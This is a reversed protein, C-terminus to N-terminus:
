IAPEQGYFCQLGSIPAYPLCINCNICKSKAAQGNKLKDPLDPEIILPRSMAILDADDRSLTEEMDSLTRYGGVSIVTVGPTLKKVKRALDRNYCYKFASVEKVADAKKQATQISELDTKGQTFLILPIDGRITTFGSEPIGGSIEVADAGQEQAMGTYKACLEPDVGGAINDSGNLKLLIPFDSGLLGRAKELIKAVILFRGEPTGGWNDNRKNIHPSLFDSLLYGHASHLQIGDFGAEKARRAAQVFDSIIKQIAEDDLIIATDSDSSVVAPQRPPAVRRGCHALQAIIRGGKNHVATTAKRLGEVHHDDSIGAMGTPGKGEQSIFLFGSVILGTGGAALQEYLETYKDSVFGNKDGLGEWTASRMIRNPIELTGLRVPSFVISNNQM